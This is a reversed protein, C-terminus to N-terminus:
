GGSHSGTTERPVLREPLRTDLALLELRKALKQADELEAFALEGSLAGRNWVALFYHGGRQQIRWMTVVAGEIGKHEAIVDM